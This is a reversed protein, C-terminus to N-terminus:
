RNQRRKCYGVLGLVGFSALMSTPEPVVSFEASGTGGTGNEVDYFLSAETVPDSPFGPVFAFNFSINGLQANNVVFELGLLNGNSYEVSPVSPPVADAETYTASDPPLTFTISLPAVPITGTFDPQEPGEFSLTGTYTAGLLDGSDVRGNLAVNFTLANAPALNALILGVSAVTTTIISLRNLTLTKNGIM